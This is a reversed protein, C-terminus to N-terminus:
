TIFIKNSLVYDIARMLSIAVALTEDGGWPGSTSRMDQLSQVSDLSFYGCNSDVNMKWGFGDGNTLKAMPEMM